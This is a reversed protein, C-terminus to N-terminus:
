RSFPNPLSRYPFSVCSAHRHFQGQARHEGQLLAQRALAVHSTREELLRGLEEPFALELTRQLEDRSPLVHAAIAVHDVEEETLEHEAEPRVAHAEVRALTVRKALIRPCSGLADGFPVDEERGRQM